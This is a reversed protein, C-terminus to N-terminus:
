ECNSKFEVTGSTTVQNLTRKAVDISPEGVVVDVAFGHAQSESKKIYGRGINPENAAIGFTVLKGVEASSTANM